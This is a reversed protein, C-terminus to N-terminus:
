LGISTIVRSRNSKDSIPSQAPRSTPPYFYYYVTPLMCFILIPIALFFYIPLVILVMQAWGIIFAARPFTFALVFPVPFVWVAIAMALFQVIPDNAGGLEFMLLALVFLVPGFCLYIAKGSM